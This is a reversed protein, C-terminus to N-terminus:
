WQRGWHHACLAELLFTISMGRFPLWSQSWSQFGLNLIGNRFLQEWCDCTGWNSPQERRFLFSADSCVSFASPIRVGVANLAREGVPWSLKPLELSASKVRVWLSAKKSFNLFGKGALRTMVWRSHIEHGSMILCKLLAHIRLVNEKLVVKYLYMNNYSRNNSITM